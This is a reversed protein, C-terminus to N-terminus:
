RVICDRLRLCHSVPVADVRSDIQGDIKMIEADSRRNLLTRLNPMKTKHAENQPWQRQAESDSYAWKIVQSSKKSHLLVVSLFM